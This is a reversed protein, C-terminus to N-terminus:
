NWGPKAKEWKRYKRREELKIVIELSTKLWNGVGM